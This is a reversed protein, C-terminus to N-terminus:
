IFTFYFFVLKSVICVIEVGFFFLKCVKEIRQLNRCEKRKCNSLIQEMTKNRIKDNVNKFFLITCSSCACDMNPCNKFVILANLRFHSHKNFNLSLSTSANLLFYSVVPCARSGMIWSILIFTLSLIPFNPLFTNSMRQIFM